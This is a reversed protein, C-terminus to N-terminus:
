AITQIIHYEECDGDTAPPEESMYQRAEELTTFTACWAFGMPSDNTVIVLYM